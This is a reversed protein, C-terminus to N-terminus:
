APQERKLATAQAMEFDGLRLDVLRLAQDAQRYIDFLTAYTSSVLPDPDIRRRM